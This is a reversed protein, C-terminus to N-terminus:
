QVLQNDADPLIELDTLRPGGSIMIDTMIICRYNETFEQVKDSPLSRTLGTALFESTIFCLIQDQPVSNRVTIHYQPVEHHQPM